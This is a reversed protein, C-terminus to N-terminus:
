GHRQKRCVAIINRALEIRKNSIPFNKYGINKIEKAGTSKAIRKSVKIKISNSFISRLNLFDVVRIIRQILYTSGTVGKGRIQGYLEVEKFFEGLLAKFEQYDLEKVHGKGAITGYIECMRKNPTSIICIGEPKLVRKIQSLLENQKNLHEIVELCVVVDFSNDKFCLQTGDSVLYKINERAFNNNAFKIDQFNRDIGITYNAEEGLLFPGDRRSCGLDLVVKDKIFDECFKYRALHEQYHLNSAFNLEKYNVKPRLSEKINEM